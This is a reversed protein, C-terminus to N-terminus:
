IEIVQLDEGATVRGKYDVKLQELRKARAEPAAPYHTLVVHRVCAENAVTAVQQPTLHGPQEQGNEWYCETLLIDADQALEILEDCYGTDGTYCLVQQKGEPTTTEIRYGVADVSHEVHAATITCDGIQVTQEFMEEVTPIHKWNVVITRRFHEFFNAFGKPGFLQVEKIRAAAATDDYESHTLSYAQFYQMFDAVHDPHTHSVLIADIDRWDIGSEAMRLLNGRGFDLKLTTTATQLVYGASAHPTHPKWDGTGLLTLKM